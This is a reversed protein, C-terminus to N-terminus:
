LPRITGKRDPETAEPQLHTSEALLLRVKGFLFLVGMILIIVQFYRRKM